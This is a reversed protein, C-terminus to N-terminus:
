SAIAFRGDAATITTVGPLDLAVVAGPVPAGRSDVVIGRIAPLPQSAAALATSALTLLSLALLFRSLHAMRMHTDTRRSAGAPCGDFAPVVGTSRSVLM